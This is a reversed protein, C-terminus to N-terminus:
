FRGGWVRHGGGGRWGNLKVWGRRVVWSRVLLEVIFVEHITFSELGYLVMM